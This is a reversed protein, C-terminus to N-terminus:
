SRGAKAEWLAPIVPTLWLMWGDETIKQGISRDMVSLSKHFDAVIILSKDIERQIRNTKRCTNECEITPHMFM